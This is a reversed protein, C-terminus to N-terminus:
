LFNTQGSAKIHAWLKFRTVTYNLCSVEYKGVEDDAWNDEEFDIYIASIGGVWSEDNNSKRM